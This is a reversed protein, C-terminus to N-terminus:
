KTGWVTKKGESGFWTVTVSCLSWKDVIKLASRANLKHKLIKLIDMRPKYRMFNVNWDSASKKETESQSGHKVRNESFQFVCVSAEQHNTLTFQYNLAELWNTWKTHTRIQNIFHIFDKRNWTFSSSCCFRKSIAEPNLLVIKCTIIFRAYLTEATWAVKWPIQSKISEWLMLVIKKPFGKFNSGDSENQEPIPCVRRVVNTKEIYNLKEYKKRNRGFNLMGDM